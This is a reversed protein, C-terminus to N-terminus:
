INPQRLVLPNDLYLLIERRGRETNADTLCWPGAGELVARLSLSGTSFPSTRIKQGFSLEGTGASSLEAM